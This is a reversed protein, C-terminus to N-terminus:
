KSQRSCALEKSASIAACKLERCRQGAELPRFLQTSGPHARIEEGYQSRLRHAPAGESRIFALGAFCRHRHDALLQPALTQAGGFVDM